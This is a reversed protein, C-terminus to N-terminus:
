LFPMEQLTSDVSDQSQPVQTFKQAQARTVVGCWATEQVLDALIPMDTGLLVPYPLNTAVGVNMLFPQNNVELYVEATPLESKDGHVCCVTVTEETWSERAIYQSQVLTRVCGTDVLATLPKGNLLM